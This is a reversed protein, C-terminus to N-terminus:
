AHLVSRISHLSHEIDSDSTDKGISFRIASSAIEPDCGMAKLVPSGSFIGSHCASGASCAIDIILSDLMYRFDVGPFSINLTNCLRESGGNVVAKPYAAIIGQELKDRLSKMKDSDKKLRGVTLAAAHALAVVYPTSETGARLGGEHGAGHQIPELMVNNAVILAGVGKPAYFKHGAISMMDVNLKSFDVVMKGIAQAADTHMLVHHERAIAGIEAIPQITGTENNALMISILLTDPRIANKIDLPDVRGDRDVPVTTIDFGQQKLFGAPGTVSPHEVASTIIHKKTFGDSYAAGKLALNNAETAGSTFIVKAGHAGLCGALEERAQAIAKAAALGATYSSSPNAFEATFYPLMAAMVENDVPTTANYDLYIM